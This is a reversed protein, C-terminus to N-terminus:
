LWSSWILKHFFDKLIYGLGNKDLNICCKLRRFLIVFIQAVETIKLFSGLTIYVIDWYAWDPWETRLLVQTYKLPHPLTSGSAKQM